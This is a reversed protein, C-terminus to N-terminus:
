LIKDGMKSKKYFYFGIGVAAFALLAISAYFIIPQQAAIQSVNRAITTTTAQAAGTMASDSAGSEAARQAAEEAGFTGAKGAKFTMTNYFYTTFMGAGIALSILSSSLIIVLRRSKSKIIGEGRETLSYFVWKKGPASTKKVLGVKEMAKLHEVITADSKDLKKAVFSPNRKGESLIKLIDMRTDASLVKLVERDIITVPEERVYVV